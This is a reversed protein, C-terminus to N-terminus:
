DNMGAGWGMPAYRQWPFHQEYQAAVGILVDDKGFPAMLQMGLPLGNDISQGSPLSIAPCGTANALPAFPSYQLLSDAGFRYDQYSDWDLGFHGIAAPSQALVPLAILDLGADVTMFRHFARSLAHLGNVHRIYDTASTQRAYAVMSQVTPQLLGMDADPHLKAHAEIASWANQAIIPVVHGLVQEPTIPFAVPVVTHGLAELRRCFDAYVRAVEDSLAPGTQPLLCGIRLSQFRQGARAQDYTDAFSREFHPAAYPNGSAAQPLTVDLLRACDRVSVTLMHEAVMGGWSEGRAPGFETMGRSTKLGVVGCCSAPIRISGGGDGGHAIPVMGAAVAAAAGGSSGGASHRLNWPNRTPGGYNPGESTPSLGLESSTTRGIFSIGAQKYRAVIDSDEKFHVDGFFASGMTSPLAPDATGLDKLLSPIGFFPKQQGLAQRQVATLGALQQDHREALQFALDENLSCVANVSANAAKLREVTSQMLEQATCDGNLLQETIAVADLGRESFHSSKM